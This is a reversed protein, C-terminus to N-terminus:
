TAVVFTQIGHIVYVGTDGWHEPAQPPPITPEPSAHSSPLLGPTMRVGVPLLSASAHQGHMMVHRLRFTTALLFLLAVSRGFVLQRRQTTCVVLLYIEDGWVGDDM